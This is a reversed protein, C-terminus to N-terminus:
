CFMTCLVSIPIMLPIVNAFIYKEQKENYTEKKDKICYVISVMVSILSFFGSCCLLVFFLIPLIIWHHWALYAFLTWILVFLLYNIITFIRTTKLM